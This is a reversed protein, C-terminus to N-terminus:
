AQREFRVVGFARELGKRKERPLVRMLARLVLGLASDRGLRPAELFLDRYEVEAWGHPEFFATGEVPAFKARAQGEEKLHDGANRVRGIVQSGSLDTLWEAFATQAHLDDALSAVEDPELYGLLGESVVLVRTSLGAVHSLFARRAERDALDMPVRELTCRATEGALEEDKYAVLAPLDVEVWRLDAPLELRYPRTDLGAALNLVTDFGRERVATLIMEDILATRIVVATRVASPRVKKAIESGREGALRRALPDRFLADPRDSEDARYAATWRATDSVDRILAKQDTM